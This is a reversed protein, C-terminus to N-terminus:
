HKQRKLLEIVKEMIQIQRKEKAKIRQELSLLRQKIDNYQITKELELNKM